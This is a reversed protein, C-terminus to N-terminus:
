LQTFHEHCEGGRSLKAKIEDHNELYTQLKGPIIETQSFFEIEPYHEQLEPLLAGYHTCGLIVGEVEGVRPDIYNAFVSFAEKLEGAEILPVLEPSAVAEIKLHNVSRKGLEFHYKGSSITRSTGLLLVRTLGSDVVEEVVPVIVGLINRDSYESNPLYEDQLRRLTEASATNCAIIVLSCDRSFLYEVGAKTLEYIEREPRPGYPVHKTDGYYEFDYDALVERVANMVLLGGLGSDFFGIKM